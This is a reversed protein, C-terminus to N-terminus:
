YVRGLRITGIGLSITHLMHLMLLLYACESHCLSIYSVEEAETIAVANNNGDYVKGTGTRASVSAVFLM